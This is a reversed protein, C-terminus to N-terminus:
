KLKICINVFLDIKLKSFIYENKKLYFIGIILFEMNNFFWVLLNLIDKGIVLMIVSSYCIIYFFDWNLEMYVNWM